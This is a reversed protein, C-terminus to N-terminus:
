GEDPAADPPQLSARWQTDLEEFGLGLAERTAAEIETGEALLRVWQNRPSRGFRESIYGLFQHGQTYVHGQLNPPTKRFDAMDAWDALRDAKAWARVVEDVRDRGGRGAYKEAALEAVGEAAWWPINNSADPSYTFTAVHGYEHALVNRLGRVGMRPDAIIKIAEGPENWGGLPDTYSLYISEQLHGMDTYLKIVQPHDLRSEFGEDVHERIEPMVEIVKMATDHLDEELYLVFNQGDASAITSWAEGAFLWDGSEALTFRAPFEVHRERGEPLQWSIRLDATRAGEAAYEDTALPSTLEMECSEPTHGALDAAWNIQERAWEAESQDICALYGEADAALVAAEMRDLLAAIAADDDGAFAAPSVTLLASVILRPITSM